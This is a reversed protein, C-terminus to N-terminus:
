RGCRAGSPSVGFSWLSWPSEPWSRRSSDMGTTLCSVAVLSAVAWGAVRGRATVPSWAEVALFAWIVRFSPLACPTVAMPAGAHSPGRPAGRARVSAAGFRLSPRPGSVPRDRDRGACSPRVRPCTSRTRAVAPALAVLAYPLVYLPETWSWVPWRAEFALHADRAEPLAVHAFAEYLVAWPVVTTAYAATREALPRLRRSRRLGRYGRRRSRMPVSAGAFTSASTASRSPRCVGSPGRSVRAVPRERKGRGRLCRVFRCRVGCLHIGSSVFHGRACM